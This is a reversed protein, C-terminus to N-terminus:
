RFLRLLKRFTHHLGSAVTQIEVALEANRKLHPDEVQERCSADKVKQFAIENTLLHRIESESLPISINHIFRSIRDAFIDALTSEKCNHFYELLVSFCQITKVERSQQSLTSWVGAGHRYVAMTDDLHKMKGFQAVYMWTPYDALPSALLSSPIQRLVNKVVAAPTHFYNGFGALDMISEHETPLQTINDNRLDCGDYLVKVRHFCAVYEPNQELFELQRQLKVPSIWYDDGECFAVYGGKSASYFDALFSFGRRSYQNESQLVLRFLSPYRAAYEKIIDTTRDTSADDHILIEVPFTTEQELFGDIAQCIYKEQNYTICCITVLPPSDSPWDHDAIRKPVALRSAGAETNAEFSSLRM